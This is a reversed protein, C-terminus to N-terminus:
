TRLLEFVWRMERPTNLNLQALPHLTREKKTLKVTRHLDLQPSM